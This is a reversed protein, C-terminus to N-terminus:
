IFNGSLCRAAEGCATLSRSEATLMQGGTRPPASPASDDRGASIGINLLVFARLFVFDFDFGSPVSIASAV